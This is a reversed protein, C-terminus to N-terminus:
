GEVGNPRWTVLRYVYWIIGAALFGGVVWGAASEYHEILGSLAGGGAILAGNWILSGLFTFVLFRWLKMQALGAPLSIITRLFPSFRFLFVVWEGHRRFRRRAGVFEEWEFTLWRGHRRIFHELHTEGWRRGLWYWFYNGAVTGLTGIFLLPLFEMQGRAVLVGGYGMIIESPVPPVINELAMLFFIGFYGGAAIADLIFASM